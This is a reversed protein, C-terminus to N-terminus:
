HELMFVFKYLYNISVSFNCHLKYSCVTSHHCIEEQLKIGKFQMIICCLLERWKFDWNELMTVPTNMISNPRNM